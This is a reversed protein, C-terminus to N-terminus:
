VGCSKSLFQPLLIGRPKWKAPPPPLHRCPEGTAALHITPFVAEPHGQKTAPNPCQEQFTLESCRDEDEWCDQSTGLSRKLEKETWWGPGVEETDWQSGYSTGVQSPPLAATRVPSQYRSPTRRTWGTLPQASGTPTRRDTGAASYSRPLSRISGVDVRVWKINHEPSSSSAFHLIVTTLIPKNWHQTYPVIIKTQSMNLKLNWYFYESKPSDPM